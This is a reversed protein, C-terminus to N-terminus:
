LDPPMRNKIYLASRIVIVCAKIEEVIANFRKENYWDTRTKVTVKILGIETECRKMAEESFDTMCHAFSNREYMATNMNTTFNAFRKYIGKDRKKLITDIIKRKGDLSIRTGLIIDIFEDMKEPSECFYNCLFMDMYKELITIEHIIMGRYRIVRVHIKDIPQM